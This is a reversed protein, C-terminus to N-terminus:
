HLSESCKCGDLQLYYVTTTGEELVDPIEAVWAISYQSAPGAAVTPTMSVQRQGCEVLLEKDDDQGDDSGEASYDSGSAAYGSGDESMAQLPTLTGSLYSM